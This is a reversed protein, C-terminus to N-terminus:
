CSQSVVRRNGEDDTRDYWVVTNRTVGRFMSLWIEALDATESLLFRQNDSTMFTEDHVTHFEVYGTVVIDPLGSLADARVTVVSKRCRLTVYLEDSQMEDRDLTVSQAYSAVSSNRMSFAIRYGAVSDGSLDGGIYIAERM